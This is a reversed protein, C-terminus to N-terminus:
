RRELGTAHGGARDADVEARTRPDVLILDGGRRAEKQGAAGRWLTIRGDSSWTPAGLDEQDDVRLVLIPDSGTATVTYLAFGRGDEDDEACVLALRAGDPSWGPAKTFRGPCPVTARLLSRDDSGDVGVIRPERQDHDSREALYAVLSRDPSPNPQVVDGGETDIDRVDGSEVDVAVLRRGDISLVLDNDSLTTPGRLLFWRM